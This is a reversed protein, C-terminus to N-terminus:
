PAARIGAALRGATAPLSESLMQERTVWQGGGQIFKPLDLINESLPQQTHEFTARELVTADDANVLVAQYWVTAPKTAGLATGERQVYRTVAGMVAMPVGLERAVRAGLRADYIAAGPPPVAAAVRRGDVVAIGRKALAAGLEVAIQEGLDPPADAVAERETYTAGADLSGGVRFPLVAVVPTGTMPQAATAADVPAQRAQEATRARPTSGRQCGALMAVVVMLGLVPAHMAPKYRVAAVGDISAACQGRACPESVVGRHGGHAAVVM